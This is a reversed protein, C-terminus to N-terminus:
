TPLQQVTAAAYDAAAQRETDTFARVDDRRGPVIVLLMLDALRAPARKPAHRSDPSPETVRVNDQALRSKPFDRPRRSSQREGV